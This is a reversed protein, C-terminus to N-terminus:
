ARRPAAALFAGDGGWSQVPFYGAAAWGPNMLNVAIADQCRTCKIERTVGVRDPRAPHIDCKTVLAIGRAAIAYRQGTGEAPATM